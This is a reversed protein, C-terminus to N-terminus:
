TERCGARFLPAAMEVAMAALKRRPDDSAQWGDNIM